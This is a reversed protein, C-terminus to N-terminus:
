EDGEKIKINNFGWWLDMKTFVQQSEMNNILDTILLLLYNNKVIQDNLNHYDMVMRKSGDKKGVFFVLM